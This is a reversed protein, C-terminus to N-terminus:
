VKLKINSKKEGALTPLQGSGSINKQNAQAINYLRMKTKDIGVVFKKNISEDRYRNKLQKFMVQGLEQLEDTIILAIVFDSTMGTGLSESM